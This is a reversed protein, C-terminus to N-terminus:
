DPGDIIYIILGIPTQLRIQAGDSPATFGLASVKELLYRLERGTATLNDPLTLCGYQSTINVWRRKPHEYFVILSNNSRSTEKILVFLKNVQYSTQSGSFVPLTSKSFQVSAFNRKCLGTIFPFNIQASLCPRLQTRIKYRSTRTTTNYLIELAGLLRM